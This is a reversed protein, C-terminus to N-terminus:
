NINIFLNGTLRYKRETFNSLIVRLIDTKMGMEFLFDSNEFYSRRMESGSVRYKDVSGQFKSNDSLNKLTFSELMLMKPSVFM